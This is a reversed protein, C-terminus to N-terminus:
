RKSRWLTLLRAVAVIALGFFLATLEDLLHFYWGLAIWFLFLLTFIWVQGAFRARSWRRRHKRGRIQDLAAIQSRRDQLWNWADQLTRPDKIDQVSYYVLSRDSRKRITLFGSSCDVDYELKTAERQIDKLHM